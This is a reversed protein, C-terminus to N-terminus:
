KRERGPYQLLLYFIFELIRDDAEMLMEAISAMIIERKKM